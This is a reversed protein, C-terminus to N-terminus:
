RKRQSAVTRRGRRARGPSDKSGTARRPAPKRRSALEPPEPEMAYLTEPALDAGNPWVVTAGIPDLAAKRFYAPSRLPKFAPGELLRGINVRKRTGDAFVLDLSTPGCARVFVVQPVVKMEPIVRQAAFYPAKVNTDMTRDWEEETLAEVRKFYFVAANNVLIDVKGFKKIVEEQM